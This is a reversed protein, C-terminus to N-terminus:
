NPKGGGPRGSIFWAPRGNHPHEIKDRTRLRPDLAFARAVRGLIGRMGVPCARPGFACLMVYPSSRFAEYEYVAEELRVM